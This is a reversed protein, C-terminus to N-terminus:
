FLLSIVGSVFLAMILFSLFKNEKIAYEPERDGIRKAKHFMLVILVADIGGAVIGVINLASIFNTLNSLAVGLPIFCTLAWSIKKNLHYDYMFMEKLAFAVAIFSTFMAFVAFLNAMIFMKPSIVKGLAITALRENPGLTNFNDIGVAGVVVLTFLVYVVAPIAMGVILTKKMRKKNHELIEKVEPVSIMGLYAFLIVGYPVFIKKASFGTLNASNIHPSTFFLIIVVAIFILFVTFLESKELTELGHYTLYSVVIFFLLSYILPSGGLISSIATGEAMIYATLAGYIGFVMSFAMALKGWRGLYKEAYGTLQHKGNTRLVVEGLYLYAILVFVGIIIIDLLGTLFGAQAVVYPIGFIGAGLICGVMTTVAELVQLKSM